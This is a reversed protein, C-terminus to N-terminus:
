LYLLLDPLFCQSHKNAQSSHSSLSPSIHILTASLEPAMNDWIVPRQISTTEFENQQAFHCQLLPGQVLFRENSIV